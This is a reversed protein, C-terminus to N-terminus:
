GRGVYGVRGSSVGVERTWFFVFGGVFVVFVVFVFGVSYVGVM